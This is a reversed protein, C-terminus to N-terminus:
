LGSANPEPRHPWWASGADIISDRLTIIEACTAFAFAAQVDFYYPLWAGIVVVNLLV